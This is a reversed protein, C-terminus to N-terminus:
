AARVFLRHDRGDFGFAPLRPEQPDVTFGLMALAREGAEFGEEVTAYLPEDAAHAAYFRQAARFVLCPPLGAALFCWALRERGAPRGLGLCAVVRGEHRVTIAPGSVALTQAYGAPAHVLALTQAPQLEIQSLDEPKFPEVSM